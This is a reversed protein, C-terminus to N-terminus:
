CTINPLIALGNGTRYGVNSEKAHRMIESWDENITVCKYCFSIVKELELTIRVATTGKM